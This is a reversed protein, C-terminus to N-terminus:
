IENAAPANIAKAVQARATEVAKKTKQGIKYISSPNGYDESFYPLMAELVEPRVKTTAANDFYYEM